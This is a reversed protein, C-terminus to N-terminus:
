RHGPPRNRPAVIMVALESLRERYAATMTRGHGDDGLADPNQMEALMSSVAVRLTMSQGVNLKTGNIIIEAEDIM